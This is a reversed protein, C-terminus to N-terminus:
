LFHGKITHLIEKPTRAINITLADKPKELTDFQSQLLEKPMYHGKRQALRAFVQDITGELYIFTAEAEINQQLLKRYKVKLASCAIVAGEKKYSIALTNLDKLWGERDKDNLPHGSTMKQINAEPHFDDGDFFPIGFDHAILKGITSKGTGSVGMVYYIRKKM